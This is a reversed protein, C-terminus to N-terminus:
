QDIIEVFQKVLRKVVTIGWDYAHGAHILTQSNNEEYGLKSWGETIDVITSGYSTFEALEKFLDEAAAVTLTKALIQLEMYAFAFLAKKSSIDVMHSLLSGKKPDLTASRKVSVAYLVFHAKIENLKQQAQVWKDGSLLTSGDTKM